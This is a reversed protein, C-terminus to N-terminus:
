RALNNNHMVHGDVFIKHGKKFHFHYFPCVKRACNGVAGM